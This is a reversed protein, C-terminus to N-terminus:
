KGLIYTPLNHLCSEFAPVQVNIDRSKLPLKEDYGRATEELQIWEKVM